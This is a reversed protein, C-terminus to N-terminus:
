KRKELEAIARKLIEIKCKNCLMSEKHSISYDVQRTVTVAAVVNADNNLYGEVYDILQSPNDIESGCKDCFYKTITKQM